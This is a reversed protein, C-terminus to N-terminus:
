MGVAKTDHSMRVTMSDHSMGVTMSDHMTPYGRSSIVSRDYLFPSYRLSYVPPTRRHSDHSMGVTMSHAVNRRDHQRAVIRSDQHRAVIRSEQQRAANTGDHQRAVNM